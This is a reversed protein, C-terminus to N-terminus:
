SIWIKWAEEAQIHLMELGNKIQAGRQEAEELFKTKEPNYVLDYVLHGPGLGKMPIPPVEDMNPYMGLPTTNIIIAFEKMLGLHLDSYGIKDTGSQRSVITYPIDLMGLAYGVAMAAGGSGLVLANRHYPKLIPKLSQYFGQVDTNYGHLFFAGQQRSIKITNVAGIEWVSEDMANLYTLVEKKYPITVNLGVLDPYRQLLAPLDSIRELPFAEYTYGTINAHRFKDAFYGPSFSHELPYGILGLRPM